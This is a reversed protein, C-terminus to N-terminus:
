IAGSRRTGRRLAIGQDAAELPGRGTYCTRPDCGFISLIAVDSGPQTGAPCTRVRGLTGAAALGDIFPKSAAELPTRGGLAEVPDDAMGDGIVLVYKLDAWGKGATQKKLTENYVM